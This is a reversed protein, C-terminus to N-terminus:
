SDFPQYGPGCVYRAELFADFSTQGDYSYYEYWPVHGDALYDALTPIRQPLQDHGALCPLLWRRAVEYALLREGHSGLSNGSYDNAAPDETPYGDLCSNVTDEYSRVEEPTAPSDIVEVRMREDVVAVSMAGELMLPEGDESLSCASFLAWGVDAPILAPRQSAAVARSGHALLGVTSAIVAGALLAAGVVATVRESRRM